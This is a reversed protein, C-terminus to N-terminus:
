DWHHGVGTGPKSDSDVAGSGGGESTEPVLGELWPRASAEGHSALAGAPQHQHCLGAWISL